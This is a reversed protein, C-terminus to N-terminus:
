SHAFFQNWEPLMRPSEVGNQYLAVVLCCIWAFIEDQDDLQDFKAKCEAVCLEARRSRSETPVVTRHMARGIIGSDVCKLLMKLSTKDLEFECNNIARIFEYVDSDVTSNVALIFEYEGPNNIANM